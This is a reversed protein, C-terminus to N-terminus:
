LSPNIIVMRGKSNKWCNFCYFFNVSNFNNFDLDTIIGM